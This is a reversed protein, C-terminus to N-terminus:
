KIPQDFRRAGVYLTLVGALLLPAITFLLAVPLGYTWVRYRAALFFFWVYGIGGVIGGTITRNTRFAASQTDDYTPNNASVGIGVMAAGCLSAYIYVWLVFTDALSYGLVFYLSIAPLTAIILVMLFAEVIRARVFKSAGKPATQIIWLQDKSDLFGIGGFTIGGISSVLIGIVAATIYLALDPSVKTSFSFASNLFLPFIISLIVGFALQSVNQAKRMFDKLTSTLLIGFSGPSARRILRMFPGDRRATVIKEMRPGAGIRFLRGASAFALGVIVLSFVSFLILDTPWSFGLNSQTLQFANTIAQGGLGNFSIATWSVLDAGWTFPFILFVNLGLLQSVTGSFYILSYLPIVIIIALVYSLAKALDNGRPSEGLRAQIVTTIFNSLWLTSIAILFMILYM